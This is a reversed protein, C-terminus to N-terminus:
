LGYTCVSESALPASAKLRGFRENRGRRPTRKMAPREGAEFDMRAQASGVAGM